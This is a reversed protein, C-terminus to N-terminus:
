ATLRYFMTLDVPKHKYDYCTWTGNEGQSQRWIYVYEQGRDESLFEEYTSYIIADTVVEGRDRGYAMCWNDHSYDHFDHKEGIESGLISLDGLDLLQDVKTATNYNNVLIEGNHEPYGDNHCYIATVSGDANQRGILSRTGM